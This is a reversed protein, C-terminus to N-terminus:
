QDNQLFRLRLIVLGPFHSLNTRQADKVQYNLELAGECALRVSTGAVWTDSPLHYRRESRPRKLM